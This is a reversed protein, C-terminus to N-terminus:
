IRTSFKGFSFCFFAVFIVVVAVLLGQIIRKKKYKRLKAERVFQPNGGAMEIM